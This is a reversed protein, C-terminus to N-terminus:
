VYRYIDQKTIWIEQQPCHNSEYYGLIRAKLLTIKKDIKWEEAFAPFDILFLVVKERDLKKRGTETTHWWHGFFVARGNPILDPISSFTFGIVPIEKERGELLYQMQLYIAIERITDIEEKKEAVLFFTVRVRRELRVPKARKKQGVYVLKAKAM